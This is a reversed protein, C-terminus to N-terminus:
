RSKITFTQATSSKELSGEVLVTEGKKAQLRFEEM